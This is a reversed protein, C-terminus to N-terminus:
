GGCLPGRRGLPAGGGGRYHDKAAGQTIQDFACSIFDAIPRGGGPRMGMVAAGVGAGVFGAEALPTDLVRWEGYKKQFGETIRFAGGYPGIDEGLLFVSDDRSMEEDLAESIAELYTVEHPPAATTM